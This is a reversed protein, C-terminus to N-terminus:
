RSRNVVFRGRRSDFQLFNGIDEDVDVPALTNEELTYIGTMTSVYLKKKVLM